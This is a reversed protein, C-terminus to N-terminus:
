LVATRWGHAEVVSDFRALLGVLNDSPVTADAFKGSLQPKGPAKQNSAARAELHDLLLGAQVVDLRPALVRHLRPRLSALGYVVRLLAPYDSSMLIHLRVNMFVPSEILEALEDLQAELQPPLGLVGDHQCDPEPGFLGKWKGLDPSGAAGVAVFDVTGTALRAVIADALEFWHLYMCLALSSVPCHFWFRLLAVPLAVTETAASHRSSELVAAAEKRLQARFEKAEKSILLVRNLIRVMRPAFGPGQEQLNEFIARTATTYFLEAGNFQCMLRVAVEGRFQFVQLDDALLRFLKRSVTALLDGSPKAAAPEARRRPPAESM